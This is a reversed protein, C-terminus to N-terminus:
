IKATLKPWLHNKHGRRCTFLAAETKVTDFQLGQRSAWEISMAACQELTRVVQNVDSGTAVWGLDNFFSLGEGPGSEEVWELLGSTYIAFIILSVPSGLPVGVEVPQGEMANGKIIIEVTREPLISETWRILDGDMQRVKMLNVLRRKAVSPIASQIVM